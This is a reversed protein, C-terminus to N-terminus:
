AKNDNLLKRKLYAKEGSESLTDLYALTASDSVALLERIETIIHNTMISKTKNDLIKCAYEFAAGYINSYLEQAEGNIITFVEGHKYNTCIIPSTTVTIKNEIRPLNRVQEFLLGNEPFLVLDDLGYQDIIDYFQDKSCYLCTTKM